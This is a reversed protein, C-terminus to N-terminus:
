GQLDKLNIQRNILYTRWTLKESVNVQEGILLADDGTTRPLTICTQGISQGFLAGVIGIIDREHAEILIIQRLQGM